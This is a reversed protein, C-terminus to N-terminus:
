SSEPYIEHCFCVLAAACYQIAEERVALDCGPWGPPFREKSSKRYQSLTTVVNKKGDVLHRFEAVALRVSENNLDLFSATEMWHAEQEAGNERLIDAAFRLINEILGPDVHGIHTTSAAIDMCEFIHLINRKLITDGTELNTPAITNDKFIQRSSEPNKLVMINDKFIWRSEKSGTPAM